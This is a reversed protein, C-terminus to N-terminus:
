YPSNSAPGLWTMSWYSGSGLQQTGGNTTIGIGVSYGAPINWINFLFSQYTTATSNLEWPFSGRSSANVM